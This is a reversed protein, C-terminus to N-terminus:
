KDRGLGGTRKYFFWFVRGRGVFRRVLITGKISTRSPESQKSSPVVAVLIQNEPKENKTTRKMPGVYATNTANRANEAAEYARM